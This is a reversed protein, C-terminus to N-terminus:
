LSAGEGDLRGAIVEAPQTHRSFFKVTVKNVDDLAEIGDTVIAKIDTEYRSLDVEPRQIIVVAVSASSEKDEFLNKDPLAVHVRATVVGDIQMLTYAMEQSLAYLYRAREEVPSSVFGEKQFIEGMSHSQIRPLGQNKLVSMAKPIDDRSVNVAWADDTESPQKSASIGATLLAAEVENAQQEDLASYLPHRECGTLWALAIFILVLTRVNM